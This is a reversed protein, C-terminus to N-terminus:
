AGVAASLRWCGGHNSLPPEHFDASLPTGKAVSEAGYFSVVSSPLPAAGEFVRRVLALTRRAARFPFSRLFFALFNMQEKPLAIPSAIIGTRGEEPKVERQGECSHM